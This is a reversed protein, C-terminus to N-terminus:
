PWAGTERYIKSKGSGHALPNKTRIQAGGSIQNGARHTGPRQENQDGTAATKMKAVRTEIEVRVPKPEDM